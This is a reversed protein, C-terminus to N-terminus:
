FLRTLCVNVVASNGNTLIMENGSNEEFVFHGDIMMPSLTVM